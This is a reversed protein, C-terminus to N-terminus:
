SFLRAHKLTAHSNIIRMHLSTPQMVDTQFNVIVSYWNKMSKEAIRTGPLFPRGVKILCKFSRPLTYWKGQLVWLHGTSVVRLFNTVNPKIFLNNM